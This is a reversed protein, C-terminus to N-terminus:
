ELVAMVASLPGFSTLGFDVPIGPAYALWRGAELTWLRAVTLSCAAEIADTVAAASATGSPAQVVLLTLGVVCTGGNATVVAAAEEVTPTEGPVVQIWGATASQLHGSDTWGDVTEDADWYALAVLFPGDGTLDADQADTTARPRTMEWYWTGAADEGAALNSHGYAGQLFNDAADDHRDFPSTAYEDDFNCAPDNGGTTLNVGGSVVDPGCDLEWHWLDVLGLSTQIDVGDTGMHPGAAPDIAWQVALSGSAQLAGQVRNYDDDISVLVYINDDDFDVQLRADVTRTGDLSPLALDLAPVSAWEAPDGDTVHVAQAQTTKGAAFLLLLISAALVLIRLGGRATHIRSARMADGKQM